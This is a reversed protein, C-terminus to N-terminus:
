VPDNESGYGVMQVLKYPLSSLFDAGIRHSLDWPRSTRYFNFIDKVVPLVQPKCKQQASSPQMPPTCKLDEYSLQMEPNCQLAASSFWIQPNFNLLKRGQSFGSIKFFSITPLKSFQGQPCNWFLKFVPTQKWCIKFVPTQKWCIQFFVGGGGGWPGWGGWGPWPGPGPGWDRPTPHHHTKEFYTSFLCM